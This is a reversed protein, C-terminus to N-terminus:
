AETLIGQRILSETEAELAVAHQMKAEAERRLRMINLRREELSEAEAKKKALEDPM